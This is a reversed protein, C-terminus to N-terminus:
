AIRLTLSAFEERLATEDGAAIDSVLRDLALRARRAAEGELHPTAAAIPVMEDMKGNCHLVVDCGAAFAAGTRQGFGGSLAHMSLDDSMVLGDYGLWGRIVQQIMRHSLTAPSQADFGSYVVHATMALPMDALQMFPYFDTCGLVAPNTDVVPLALHSDAFARGHGPIHKIVPLVGGALLGNCAARGMEAVEFPQHSYARDGIVDHAGEVPVDLVPLCDVNIGIAALDFAILRSQLWVARLGAERDQQYIEGLFRGTPYSPWHPPRLRAVRGGEQDILIPTDARGTITRLQDTLALVQARDDINRGFLIFGWPAESAFFSREESTLEKGTIGAIFAKIRM